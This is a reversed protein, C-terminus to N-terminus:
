SVLENHRIIHGIWLCHRNKLIKVLLRGEKARQFVEDNKIRDTWTIKLM